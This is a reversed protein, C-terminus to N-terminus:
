RDLWSRRRLVQVAWFVSVVAFIAALISALAPIWGPERWWWSAMACSLAITVVAAVMSHIAYIARFLRVGLPEVQRV